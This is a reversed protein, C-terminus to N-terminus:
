VYNGNNKLVAGLKVFVLFVHVCIINDHQNFLFVAHLESYFLNYVSLCIIMDEGKM